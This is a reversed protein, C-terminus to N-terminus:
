WPRVSKAKIPRVISSETTIIIPKRKSSQRYFASYMQQNLIMTLKKFTGSLSDLTHHFFCCQILKAYFMIQTDVYFWGCMPRVCFLIKYFSHTSLKIKPSLNVYVFYNGCTKIDACKHLSYPMGGITVQTSLIYRNTECYLVVYWLDSQQLVEPLHTMWHTTAKISVWM